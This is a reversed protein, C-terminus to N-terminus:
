IARLLRAPLRIPFLMIALALDVVASVTKGLLRLPLGVLWVFPYLVLALIAVPWCFVLLLCLLLLKEMAKELLRGLRGGFKLLLKLFRFQNM